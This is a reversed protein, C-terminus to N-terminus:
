AAKTLTKAVHFLREDTAPLNNIPAHNRVSRTTSDLFHDGPQLSNGSGRIPPGSKESVRLRALKPFARERLALHM